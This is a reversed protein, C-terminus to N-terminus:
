VLEITSIGLLFPLFRQSVGTKAEIMTMDNPMIECLVNASVTVAV